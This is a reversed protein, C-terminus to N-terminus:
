TAVSIGRSSMLGKIIVSAISLNIDTLVPVSTKGLEYSKAVQSCELLITKESNM